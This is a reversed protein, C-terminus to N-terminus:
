PLFLGETPSLLFVLFFPSKKKKSRNGYALKSLDLPM